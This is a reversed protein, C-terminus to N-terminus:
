LTRRTYQAWSTETESVRIAAPYRDLWTMLHEALRESTPNFPVTENLVAGNLVEEIHWSLDQPVPTPRGYADAATVLYSHGHRQGCQHGAPLGSLYHTAEFGVTFGDTPAPARGTRIRVEVLAATVDDPLHERSWETLSAALGEDSVDPVRGNLLRHDFVDRIHHKLPKLRGFDVVFGVDDLSEAALVVEATFSHGDDRGDLQRTAEFRFLKGISWLSSM